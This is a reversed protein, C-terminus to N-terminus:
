RNLGIRGNPFRKLRKERLLVAIRNQCPEFRSAPPRGWGFLCLAERCLTQEPLPLHKRITMVIAEDYEEPPIFDMYNRHNIRDRVLIQKNPFYYFGDRHIVIEERVALDIAERVLEDTLPLRHNNRFSIRKQMFRKWAQIRKQLLEAAIPHEVDIIDAIIPILDRPSEVVPESFQSQEFYRQPTWERYPVAAPWRPRSSPIVRYPPSSYPSSSVASPNTIQHQIKRLFAALSNTTDFFFPLSWCDVLQWGLRNLMERRLRFRECLFEPSSEGPGSDILIGLDYDGPSSSQVSLVLDLHSTYEESLHAPISISRQQRLWGTLQRTFPDAIQEVITETEEENGEQRLGEQQQAFELFHCLMEIGPAPNDNLLARLQSPTFNAFVQMRYRSRSIIVNLRREGGEQNLPGFNLTLKQQIDFGYGISIFIVDREDGQV